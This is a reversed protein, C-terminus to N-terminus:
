CSEAYKEVLRIMANLSNRNCITQLCHNFLSGVSLRALCVSLFLFLSFSLASTVHPPFLHVFCHSRKRSCMCSWVAMATHITRSVYWVHAFHVICCLTRQQTSKKETENFIHIQACRVLRVATQLEAQRGARGGAQSVRRILYVHEFIANKNENRQNEHTQDGFAFNLSYVKRKMEMQPWCVLRISSVSKISVSCNRNATWTVIEKNQKHGNWYSNSLNRLAVAPHISLPPFVLVHQFKLTIQCYSDGCIKEHKGISLMVMHNLCRENSHHTFKNIIAASLLVPIGHIQRWTDVKPQTHIHTRVIRTVPVSPKLWNTRSSIRMHCMWFTIKIAPPFRSHETGVFHPVFCCFCISRLTRARAFICLSTKSQWIQKAVAVFKLPLLDFRAHNWVLCACVCVVIVCVRISDFFVQVFNVFNKRKINSIRYFRFSFM